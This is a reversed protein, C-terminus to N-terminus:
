TSSSSSRAAAHEEIRGRRLLVGIVVLVASPILLLLPSSGLASAAAAGAVYSVLVLVLIWVTTRRRHDSIRDARRAALALKEGIRALTGTGYTTAVAVQGVRRLAATQMGMAVAGVVIIPYDALRTSASFSLGFWVLMVPLMLVLLAEVFLLADSRTPRGHRIEHDHYVTACVVGALFAALAAVFGAADQWRGLGAFMGLHVMNGSMNAVFVPTAHLYVHADVFGAVAALAAAFVLPGSPHHIHEQPM